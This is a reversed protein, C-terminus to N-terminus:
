LRVCCHELRAKVAVVVLDPREVGEFLAVVLM